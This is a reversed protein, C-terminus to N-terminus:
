HKSYPMPTHAYDIFVRINNPFIKVLELRGNVGKLKKISSYISNKKIWM